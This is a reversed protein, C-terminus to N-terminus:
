ETKGGKEKEDKYADKQREVMDNRAKVVPDDNDDGHYNPTTQKRQRSVADDKPLGEIVGDFRANIYEEATEKDDLKAKAEPQKKLIAAKMIELNSMSDIKGMEEKDFVRGAKAYLDLRVKVGEQVKEDVNVGELEKVKAESADFKGQLVEKESTLTTTSEEATDARKLEKRYNNIVEQAAEYDIGDINLNPMSQGKRNILTLENNDLNYEKFNDYDLCSGDESVQVDFSKAKRKLHALVDAKQEPSLNAQPLRALGNRVHAADYAPFKRIKNDGTGHVFCFDSDPLEQRQRDTLVADNIEFGDINEISDLNDLNLRLDSGGRAKDCVAVHNYKRSIQIADYKEGQYVGEQLVIVAKYGPSLEQTGNDVSDIADSDTITLSSTLFSDDRKINEGTFGVKHRKVTKSDLVREPPHQNTVPKMKLSDMSVSNFLTGEPVFEKRTSGNVLAYTLIGIKAIAAEGTLYGEDTRKVNGIRRGIFDARQETIVEATDFNVDLVGALETITESDETAKEFSTFPNDHDKMWKRAEEPTFRGKPFLFSQESTTTEGRLKGGLIHIGNPLTKLTVINQFRGPDKTRASHFNIRPM